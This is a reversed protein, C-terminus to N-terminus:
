LLLQYSSSVTATCSSTGVLLARHLPFTPAKCPAACSISDQFPFLELIIELMESRNVTANVAPFCSNKHWAARCKPLIFLSTSPYLQFELRHPNDHLILGANFVWGEMIWYQRHWSKHQRNRMNEVQYQERVKSANQRKAYTLVNSVGSGRLALRTNNIIFFPGHKRWMEHFIKIWEQSATWIYEECDHKRRKSVVQVDSPVRSLFDLLENNDIMYPNRLKKTFKNVGTTWFPFDSQLFQACQTYAAAPTLATTFVWGVCACPISSTHPLAPNHGCM